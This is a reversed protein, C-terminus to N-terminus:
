SVSKKEVLEMATIADAKNFGPPLVIKWGRNELIINNKGPMNIQLSPLKIIESEEISLKKRESKTWSYFTTPRINNEKCFQSGSLGSARWIALYEKRQEPTYKKNM